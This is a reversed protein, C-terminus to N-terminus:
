NNVLSRVGALGCQTLHRGESDKAVSGEADDRATKSVVPLNGVHHDHDRADDRNNLNCSERMLSNQQIM